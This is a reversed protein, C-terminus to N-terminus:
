EGSKTTTRRTFKPGSPLEGEDESGGAPGSDGGQNETAESTGDSTKAPATRRTTTTKKAAPAAKVPEPAPEPEVVKAPKPESAGGGAQREWKHSADMNAILKKQRATARKPSRSRAAKEEPTLMNVTRGTAVNTYTIPM